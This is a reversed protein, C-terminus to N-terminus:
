LETTTASPGSRLQSHIMFIYHGVWSQLTALGSVVAAGLCVQFIARVDLFDCITLLGTVVAFITSFGFLPIMFVLVRSFISPAALGIGNLADDVLPFFSTSSKGATRDAMEYEIYETRGQLQSMYIRLFPTQDKIDALRLARMTPMLRFESSGARYRGKTAFFIIRYFLKRFLSIVFNDQRVKRVGAVTDCSTEKQKKLMEPILEPPDQCDAALFPVIYGGKAVQIGRQMSKFAGINFENSLVRIHAHKMKLNQLVTLTEDTSANDVLIHEFAIDATLMSSLLRQVCDEITLEENYCPTVVSIEVQNTLM